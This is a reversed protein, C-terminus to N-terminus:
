SPAGSAAPRRVTGYSVAAVHGRGIVEAPTTSAATRQLTGPAQEALDRDPMLPAKGSAPDDPDGYAIM